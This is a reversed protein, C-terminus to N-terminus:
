RLPRFIGAVDGYRRGDIVITAIRRGDQPPGISIANGCVPKDFLKYWGGAMSKSYAEIAKGRPCAPSPEAAIIEGTSLNYIPKIAFCARPSKGVPLDDARAAARGKAAVPGQCALQLGGTDPAGQREYKRGNWAYTVLSGAQRGEFAIDHLGGHVTNLVTLTASQTIALPIPRGTFGHATAPIVFMACGEGNCWERNQPWVVLDPRGDGTIDAKGANFPMMRPAKAGFIRRVVATEAPTPRPGIVVKTSAGAPTAITVGAALAALGARRMM